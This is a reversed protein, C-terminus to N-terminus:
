DCSEDFVQKFESIWRLAVSKSVKTCDQDSDDDNIRDENYLQLLKLRYETNVLKHLEEATLKDNKLLQNFVLPMLANKREINMPLEDLAKQKATIGKININRITEYIWNINLQVLLQCTLAADILKTARYVATVDPTAKDFVTFLQHLALILPQEYIGTDVILQQNIRFLPRHKYKFMTSNLTHEIANHHERDNMAASDSKVQTHQHKVKDLVIRTDGLHMAVNIYNSMLFSYHEVDRIIQEATFSINTEAADLADVVWCDTNLYNEDFGYLEHLKRLAQEILKEVISNGVCEIKDQEIFESIKM